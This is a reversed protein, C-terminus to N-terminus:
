RSSHSVANYYVDVGEFEEMLRERVLNMDENAANKWHELVRKKGVDRAKNQMDTLRKAYIEGEEVLVAEWFPHWIRRKLESAIDWTPIVRTAPGTVRTVSNSFQLQGTIGKVFSRVAAIGWLLALVMVVANLTNAIMVLASFTSAGGLQSLFSFFATLVSTIRGGGDLVDDPCVYYYWYIFISCLSAGLLPNEVNEQYTGTPDLFPTSYFSFGALIGLILASIVSQGIPRSYWVIAPIILLFKTGM